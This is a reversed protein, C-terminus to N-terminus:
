LKYYYIFLRLFLHYIFHAFSWKEYQLQKDYAKSYNSYWWHFSLIWILYKFYILLICLFDDAIAWWLIRVWWALFNTVAVSKLEHWWKDKPFLIIKCFCESLYFFSYINFIDSITVFYSSDIFYEIKLRMQNVQLRFLNRLNLCHIHKVYRTTRYPKIICKIPLFFLQSRKNITCTWTFYKILFLHQILRDQSMKSVITFLHFEHAQISNWFLWCCLLLLCDWM